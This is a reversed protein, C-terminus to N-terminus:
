MEIQMMVQRNTPTNNDYVGMEDINDEMDRIDKRLKNMQNQQHEMDKEISQVKIHRQTNVDLELNDEEETADFNFQDEKVKSNDTQTSDIVTTTLQTPTFTAPTTWQFLVM